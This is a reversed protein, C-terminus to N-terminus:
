RENFYMLNLTTELTMTFLMSVAIQKELGKIIKKGKKM